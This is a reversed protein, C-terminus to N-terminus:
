RCVLARGKVQLNLGQTDARSHRVWANFIICICLRFLVFPGRLEEKIDRFLVVAAFDNIQHLIDAFLRLKLPFAEQWAPKAGVM